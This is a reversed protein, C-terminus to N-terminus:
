GTAAMGAYIAWRLVRWGKQLLVATVGQGLGRDAGTVVAIRQM